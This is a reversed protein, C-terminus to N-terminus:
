EFSQKVGSLNFENLLLSIRKVLHKFLSGNDVIPFYDVINIKHVGDKYFGLNKSPCVPCKVGKLSPCSPLQVIWFFPPNSLGWYPVEVHTKVWM